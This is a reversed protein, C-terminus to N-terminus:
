MRGLPFPERFLHVQEVPTVPEISTFETHRRRARTHLGAPSVTYIVKTDIMWSTGPFEGASDSKKGFIYM